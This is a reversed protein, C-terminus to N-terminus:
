PLDDFNQVLTDITDITRTSDNVARLHLGSTLPELRADARLTTGCSSPGVYRSSSSTKTALAPHSAQKATSHESQWVHKVVYSSTQMLLKIDLVFSASQVYILDFAVKQRVDYLSRDYGTRIQALGTIGPAVKTRELYNPIERALESVFEPREPRPGILNMEGTLVNFLQPLEDLHSARLWRGLRTVRPDSNCSWVAGTQSEADNVMTRFKWIRFQRGAQGVRTQRYFVPRGDVILVLLGVCAMLPLAIILSAVTIARDVIPKITFYRAAKSEISESLLANLSELAASSPTRSVHPAPYHASQPPRNTNSQRAADLISSM